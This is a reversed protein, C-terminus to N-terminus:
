DSTTVEYFYNVKKEIRISLVRFPRNKNFTSLQEFVITVADLYEIRDVKVLAMVVIRQGVNVTFLVNQLQHIHQDGVRLAFSFGPIVEPDFRLRQQIRRQNGIDACLAWIIFSIKGRQYGHDVTHLGALIVLIEFVM